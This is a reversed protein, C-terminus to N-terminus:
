KLISSISSTQLVIRQTVISGSSSSNVSTEETDDVNSHQQQQQQQEANGEKGDKDSLQRQASITEEIDSM